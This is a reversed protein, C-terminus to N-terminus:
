KELMEVDVVVVEDVGEWVEYLFFEAARFDPAFRGHLYAIAEESLMVRAVDPRAFYALRRGIMQRWHAVTHVQEVDMTLPEHLWRGVDEHSSVILRMDGGVRWLRRRQWWSLRQAEDLIFVDLGATESVFYRQGEPLYEYMVKLGDDELREAILRLATTKGAGKAGLLQLNRGSEVGAVLLPHLYGIEVWQEDTLTCFPNLWYGLERMHTLSKAM